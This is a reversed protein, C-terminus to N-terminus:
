TKSTKSIISLFRNAIGDRSKEYRLYSDRIKIIKTDSKKPSDYSDISSFIGELIEIYTKYLFNSNKANTDNVM